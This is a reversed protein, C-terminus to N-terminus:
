EGSKNLQNYFFLRVSSLKEKPVFGTSGAQESEKKMEDDDYNSVIVVKADPFQSILIKTASIGDMKKMSIDMLVWDPKLRNYCNLVESGDECEDVVTALDHIISKLTERMERNDDVIVVTPLM